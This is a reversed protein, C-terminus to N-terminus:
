VEHKETAVGYASRNEREKNEMGLYQRLAREVIRSRPVGHRAEDLKKVVQNDISFGISTWVYKENLVTM